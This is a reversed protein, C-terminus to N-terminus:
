AWNNVQKGGQALARGELSGFAAATARPTPVNAGPITASRQYRPIRAM